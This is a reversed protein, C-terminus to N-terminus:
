CFKEFRTSIYEEGIDDRPVKTTKRLGEEDFKTSRNIVQNETWVNYSFPTSFVM